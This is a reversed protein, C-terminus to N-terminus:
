PAVVSASGSAVAAYAAARDRNQRSKIVLAGAALVVVVVVGAILMWNPDGTAIADGGGVAGGGATVGGAGKNQNAATKDAKVAEDNLESREGSGLPKGHALWMAVGKAEVDAIRRSWGKGFTKFTSLGRVFSLRQACIKQVVVKGDMKFSKTITEHGVQGDRAAGVAAQLSKVGRSPGSNVGYDFTALDVGYPLADGSIPKWYGDRYIMEIEANSIARLQAKTAGPNWRRYTALTVGKMTAGGPDKPHDAWGGEHPLTVALCTALNGRAM